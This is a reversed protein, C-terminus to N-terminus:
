KTVLLLEGKWRQCNSESVSFYSALAPDEDILDWYEKSFLKVIRAQQKDESSVDDAYWVGDPGHFFTRGRIQRVPLATKGGAYKAVTEAQASQALEGLTKANDFCWKGSYGDSKERELIRAVLERADRRFGRSALQAPSLEPGVLFSTYPTVVGFRRALSIVDNVREETEGEVRITELLAAVKRTAWLRAIAPTSASKVNFDLVFEFKMTRNAERGTVRLLGQDQGQYRGVVVLDTGYFLDPFSNPYVETVQIEKDECLGQFSLAIDSLVPHNLKDFLNAIKHDIKEGPEIYTRTGRHELALADLLQTHVDQGVGTVFLRSQRKNSQRLTERIKDPDTEGITPIGDTLFLVLSRRDTGDVPNGASRDLISFAKQLAEDLATGGRPLIGSVFQQAQQITEPIALSLEESFAMVEHGFHLVTFRTEPSLRGLCWTLASKVQDLKEGRMSGSSDVVFVIDQPVPEQLRASKGPSLVLLFYPDEGPEEYKLFTPIVNGAGTTYYVYLDSGPQYNQTQLGAEWENESIRRTTLPHTPSYVTSIPNADRIFAQFNVARHTRLDPNELAGGRWGVLEVVGSESRLVQEFRVVVQVTEGPAVEPIEVQVLNQGYWELLAANEHREALQQLLQRAKEADLLQTPLERGKAHLSLGSVAADAGLSMLFTALVQQPNPNVFQSRVEWSAVRDLVNVRIDQRDLRLPQPTALAQVGCAHAVAPSVLMGLSLIVRLLSRKM